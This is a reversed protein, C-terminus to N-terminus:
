RLWGEEEDGGALLVVAVDEGFTTDLRALRRRKSCGAFGPFFTREEERESKEQVYQCSEFSVAPRTSPEAVWRV